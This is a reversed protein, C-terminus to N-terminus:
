APRIYLLGVHVIVVGASRDRVKGQNIHLLPRLLIWSGNHFGCATILSGAVGYCVGVGCEERRSSRNRSCVDSRSKIYNECHQAYRLRMCTRFFSVSTKLMWQLGWQKQLANVSVRIFVEVEVDIATLIVEGWGVM